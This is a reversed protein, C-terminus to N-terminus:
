FLRRLRVKDYRDALAKLEKVVKDNSSSHSQFNQLVLGATWAKKSRNLLM